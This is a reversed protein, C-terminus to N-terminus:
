ASEFFTRAIMDVMRRRTALDEMLLEHRGSPEVYFVSRSWQAMRDRIRASDVVAESSGMITICPIDPAPRRALMRAEALAGGLWQLSPGGLQLEPRATLQDRMLQYSPADRTLANSSFPESLIYSKAGTTSPAYRKGFGFQTGIMSLIWAFPRKWAPISIGWMPGSFAVAAFPAGDTVARLAICGGMSHALLFWPKPLALDRAAEAMAIMDMQYDAFQGVHGLMPDEALRDALGQGRWDIAIATLGHRSLDDAVTSYKEIYETRGPLVFVTGRVPREGQAEGPWVGLRLRVGDKAWVWFAREPAPADTIEAFYPAPDSM